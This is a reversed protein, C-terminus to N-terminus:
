EAKSHRGKGDPDSDGAVRYLRRHGVGDADLALFDFTFQREM